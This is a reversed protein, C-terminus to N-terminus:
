ELEMMEIIEKVGNAFNISPIFGIDEKAKNINM